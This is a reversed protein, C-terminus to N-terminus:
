AEVDDAREEVGTQKRKRKRDSVERWEEIVEHALREALRIPLGKREQEGNRNRKTKVRKESM